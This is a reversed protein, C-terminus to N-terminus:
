GGSAKSAAGHLLDSLLDTMEGQMDTRNDDYIQLTDLRAHRSLRRVKRIDGKAADLVMTIATHRLRHPSLDARIGADSALRRVIKFLGDATLGQGHYARSVNVFLPQEGQTGHGSAALYTRIAEVSNASLTVRERQTGKGKGHIWIARGDLDCDGVTLGVVESRRLANELLLLLLAFDRKGKRTARNPQALLLQADAMSIGRTDRYAQVREMDIQDKPNASTAGIRRAYKVLSLIASMRRNVTAETLGSDILQAKYMLIRRAMQHTDLALFRSVLEPAAEEGYSAKFFATLDYAYARKTNPSRKDALLMAMVDAAYPSELSPPKVIMTAPVTTDTQADGDGVVDIDTIGDDTVDTSERIV